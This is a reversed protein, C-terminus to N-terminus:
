EDPYYIHLQDYLEVSYGSDDPFHEPLIGYLNDFFQENIKDGWFEVVNEGGFEDANMYEDDIMVYARFKGTKGELFRITENVLDDYSSLDKVTEFLHDRLVAMAETPAFDPAVVNGEGASKEIIEIRDLELPTIIEILEDLVALSDDYESTYYYCFGCEFDSDEFLLDITKFHNKPFTEDIRTDECLEGDKYCFDLATSWEGDLMYHIAIRHFDNELISTEIQIPVDSSIGDELIQLDKPKYIYRINNFESIGLKKLRKEM